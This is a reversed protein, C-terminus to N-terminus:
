KTGKVYVNFLSNTTMHGVELIVNGVLEIEKTLSVEEIFIPTEITPSFVVGGLLAYHDQTSIPEFPTKIPTQTPTDAKFRKLVSDKVEPSINNLTRGFVLGLAYDLNDLGKFDEPNANDAWASAWRTVGEYSLFGEERSKLFDLLNNYEVGCKKTTLGYRDANSRVWSRIMTQKGQAVWPLDDYPNSEGDWILNTTAKLAWEESLELDEDDGIYDSSLELGFVHRLDLEAIAVKHSCECFLIGQENSQSRAWDRLSHGVCSKMVLTLDPSGHIGRKADGWNDWEMRSVLSLVLEGQFRKNIKQIFRDQFKKTGGVLFTKIEM